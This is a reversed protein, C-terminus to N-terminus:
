ISKSLMPPLLKLLTSNNIINSFTRDRLTDIDCGKINNNKVLLQQAQDCVDIWGAKCALLSQIASPIEDASLIFLHCHGLSQMVWQLPLVRSHIATKLHVFLWWNYLAIYTVTILVSQKIWCMTSYFKNTCLSTDSQEEQYWTQCQFALFRIKNSFVRSFRKYQERSAIKSHEASSRSKIYFFHHGCSGNCTHLIMIPFEQWGHIVLSLILFWFLM